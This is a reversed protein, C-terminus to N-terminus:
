SLWLLVNIRKNKQQNTTLFNGHVTGVEGELKSGDLWEKAGHM